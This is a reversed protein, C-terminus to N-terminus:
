HRQALARRAAEAEPFEGPLALAERLLQTGRVPDGTAILVMGLHYKGTANRDPAQVSELLNRARKMDDKGKRTYLAWALTDTVESRSPALQHAHEALEVAKAGDGVVDAYLMAANNLVIPDESAFRLVREYYPLAAKGQGMRTLQAALEAAIVLSKPNKREAEQLAKLAEDEAKRTRLSRALASWLREEAPMSAIAESLATEALKDQGVRRLVGDLLLRLGVDKPAADIQRQVLAVATKKDGARIALSVLGSLARRDTPVQRLVEEFEQKANEPQGASTYALGLLEHAAPSAGALALPKLRAVAADAKKEGLELRALRLQANVHKSDAELVKNLEAKAEDIRSVRALADALLLRLRTAEEPQKTVALASRLSWAASPKNIAAEHLARLRVLAPANRPLHRLAEETVQHAGLLHGLTSVKRLLQQDRHKRALHELLLVALTREGAGVALTALRMAVASHSVNAKDGAAKAAKAQEPEGLRALLITRALHYEAPIPRAGADGAPPQWGDLHGLAATARQDSGALCAEVLLAPLSSPTKHVIGDIGRRAEDHKGLMTQVRVLALAAQPCDGTKLVKQLTQEARAYDRLQEYALSQGLLVDSAAPNKAQQFQKLAKEPDGLLLRYGEAVHQDATPPKHQKCAHLALGLLAPAIWRASHRLTASVGHM